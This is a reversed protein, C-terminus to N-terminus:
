LSIQFLKSSKEILIQLSKLFTNLCIDLCIKFFLCNIKNQTTTNIKVAHASFTYFAPFVQKKYEM